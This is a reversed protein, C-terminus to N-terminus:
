PPVVDTLLDPNIDDFLWEDYQVYPEEVFRFEDEVMWTTDPPPPPPSGGDWFVFAEQFLEEETRALAQYSSPEEAQAYRLVIERTGDRELQWPNGDLDTARNFSIRRAELCDLNVLCLHVTNTAPDSELKFFKDLLEMLDNLKSWNHAAQAANCPRSIFIDKLFIRRREPAEAATPPPPPPPPPPPGATGQFFFIYESGPGLWM